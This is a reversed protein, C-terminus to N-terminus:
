VSSLTHYTNICQTSHQARYLCEHKCCIVHNLRYMCYHSAKPLACHSATPLLVRLYASPSDQNLNYLVFNCYQKSVDRHFCIWRRLFAPVCRKLALTQTKSTSQQLFPLIAFLPNTPSQGLLSQLFPLNRSPFCLDWRISAPWILGVSDAYNLSWDLDPLTVAFIHHKWIFLSSGLFNKFQSLPYSGLRLFAKYHYLLLGIHELKTTITDLCTYKKHMHVLLLTAESDRLSLANTKM